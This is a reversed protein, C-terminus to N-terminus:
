SVDYLTQWIFLGFLDIERGLKRCVNIFGQNSIIASKRIHLFSNRLNHILHKENLLYLFLHLEGILSKNIMRKGFCINMGLYTM